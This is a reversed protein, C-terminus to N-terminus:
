NPVNTQDTQTISLHAKTWRTYSDFWGGEDVVRDRLNKCILVRAGIHIWHMYWSQGYYRVPM